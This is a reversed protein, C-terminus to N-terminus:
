QMMNKIHDLKSKNRSTEVPKSKEYEIKAKM